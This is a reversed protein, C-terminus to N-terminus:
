RSGCFRPPVQGSPYRIHRKINDILTSHKWYEAMGLQDMPVLILLMVLFCFKHNVLALLLVSFTKKHNFFESCLDRCPSEPLKAITLMCPLQNHTRGDIMLQPQCTTSSCVVRYQKVLKALLRPLFILIVCSFAITSYSNDTANFGFVFIISLTTIEYATFLRLLPPLTHSIVM